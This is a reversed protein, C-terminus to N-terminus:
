TKLDRDTGLTKNKGVIIGGIYFSVDYKDCMIKLDKKSMIMHKGTKTFVGVDYLSSGRRSSPALLWEKFVGKVAM